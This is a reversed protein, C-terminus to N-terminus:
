QLAALVVLGAIVGAIGLIQTLTPRERLVMIGFVIPIVAYPASATGVITTPALRVGVNFCVYGGTDLLAVLPVALVAVRPAAPLRLEHRWALDALLFLSAFGRALFIPALWGLRHSDYSVGYVFGGFGAAAVVALVVGRRARRVIPEDPRHRFNLSAVLVGALTLLVGGAIGLSPSEGGILVAFLVTVASYGSVIPSVVSIPGIALASYFAVFSLWGAGGLAVFLPIDPWGVATMGNSVAVAVGLGVTAVLHFAMVIWRADVSKTAWAVVPDALGWCVSACLGLGIGM